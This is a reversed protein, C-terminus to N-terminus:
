AALVLRERLGLHPLAAALKGLLDGRYDVMYYGVGGAAGLVWSPCGKQGALEIDAEAADVVRCSEDAGARVCVPVAWTPAPAAVHAGAPLYRRQEIHVAPTGAGCRLAMSVEPVGPQDLFSSFPGAVDRGAAAGLAELFDRSTANKYAHARLYRRVGERF